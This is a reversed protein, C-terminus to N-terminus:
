PRHVAAGPHRSPRQPRLPGAGHAGGLPGLWRAGPPLALRRPRARYTTPRFLHSLYSLPSHSLPSGRPSRPFWGHPGFGDRGGDTVPSDTVGDGPGGRSPNRSEDCATVTVPPTVSKGSAGGRGARWRATREAGSLGGRPGRRERPDQPPAIVARGEDLAVLGRAVLEDLLPVLVERPTDGLGDVVLVLTGLLDLPAQVAVETRDCLHGYVWKAGPTLAGFRTDRRLVAPVSICTKM